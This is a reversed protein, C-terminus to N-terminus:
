PEGPCPTNEKISENRPLQSGAVEHWLEEGGKTNTESKLYGQRECHKRLRTSVRVLYQSDSCSSHHTYISDQRQFTVIGFATSVM